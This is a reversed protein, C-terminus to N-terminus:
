EEGGEAVPGPEGKARRILPDLSFEDRVREPNGVFYEYLLPEIQYRWIERVLTEDLGPQMFYSHGVLCDRGVAEKLQANLLEVFRGIWRLSDGNRRLWTTLMRQVDGEDPYFPIFTFRRRLAFDVLAISRDATNMTGIIRVNGPIGFRERDDTASKTYALEIQDNRYELLYMLEGFIKAIQGRNIEDIVLTYTNDPDATARECFRKFSGARVPYHVEWRDDGCERSEPKIGEMFDEYTYSPHFQILERRSDEREALYEAIKRAVFTKGTGPPGFFIVQGKRELQIIIDEIFQVSCCCARALDALTPGDDGPGWEEGTTVGTPGAVPGPREVFPEPLGIMRGIQVFNNRWQSVDAEAGNVERALLRGNELSVLLDHEGVDSPPLLRVLNALEGSSAILWCPMGGSGISEGFFGFFDADRVDAERIPWSWQDDGIADTHSLARVRVAGGPGSVSFWGESHNECIAKLLHQFVAERFDAAVARARFGAGIASYYDHPSLPFVVRLNIPNKSSFFDTKQRWQESGEGSLSLPPEFLIGELRLVGRQEDHAGGTPYIELVRGFSGYFSTDSGTHYLLYDISKGAQIDKTLQGPNGAAGIGYIYAIGADQWQHGGWKAALSYYSEEPLGLMERIAANEEDSLRFNTGQPNTVIRMGATREDEKLQERLLPEPVPWEVLLDVKREGFEDGPTEYVDSIIHSIGYIGADEGAKWLYVIDGIQMEEAHQNTAWNERFPVPKQLAAVLDWRDPNCQFIWANSKQTSPPVRGLVEEYRPDDSYKEALSWFIEPELDIVALRQKAGPLANGYGREGSLWDVGIRRKWRADLEDGQGRDIEYYPRNVRGVGGIKGETHMVVYDGPRIEQFFALNRDQANDNFEIAAFGQETTRRVLQKHDSSRLALAVKWYRPEDPLLTLRYLFADVMLMDDLVGESQDLIDQMLENFKRYDGALHEEWEDEVSLLWALRRMGSVAAANYLGMKEPHLMSLIMTVANPGLGNRAKIVRAASDFLDEGSYLLGRLAEPLLVRLEDETTELNVGYAHTAQGVMQNGEVSWEGSTLRERMVEVPYERYRDESISEGDATHIAGFRWVDRSFEDLTLEDLHDEALLERIKLRAQEAALRRREVYQEDKVWAMLGRWMPSDWIDREAM